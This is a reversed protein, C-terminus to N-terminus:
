VKCRAAYTYGTDYKTSEGLDEWAAGPNNTPYGYLTCTGGRIACGGDDFAEINRGRRMTGCHGDDPPLTVKLKDRDPNWPVEVIDGDETVRFSKYKTKNDQM